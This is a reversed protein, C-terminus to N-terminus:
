AKNVRYTAEVRCVTAAPARAIVYDTLYSECPGESKSWRTAEEITDVAAWTHGHPGGLSVYPGAPESLSIVWFTQHTKVTAARRNVQRRKPRREPEASWMLRGDWCTHSEAAPSWTWCRECRKKGFLDVGDETTWSPM